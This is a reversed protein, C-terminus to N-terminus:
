GLMRNAKRYAEHCQEAVKLHSTMIIALDKYSTVEELLQGNMCYQFVVNRRSLHMVKCKSINFLMQWSGAWQYLTNIDAHLKM